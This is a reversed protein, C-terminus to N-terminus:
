STLMFGPRGPNSGRLICIRDPCSSVASIRCIGCIHYVLTAGASGRALFTTGLTHRAPPHKAFGHGPRISGLLVALGSANTAKNAPKAASWVTPQDASRSIHLLRLQRQSDLFIKGHSSFSPCRFQTTRRAVITQSLAFIEACSFVTCSDSRFPKALFTEERWSIVMADFLYKRRCCLTLLLDEDCEEECSGRLSGESSRSLLTEERRSLRNKPIKGFIPAIRNNYFEGTRRPRKRIEAFPLLLVGGACAM